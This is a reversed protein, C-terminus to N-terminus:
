DDWQAWVAPPRGWDPDDSSQWVRAPAAGMQDAAKAVAEAMTPAYLVVPVPQFGQAVEYRHLGGLSGGLDKGVYKALYRAARRAEALSSAGAPLDGLLKIHVFGHGWADEIWGRRIYRGVAFHVHLGHGSKHWEPVWLYPLAGGVEGRLRRFFRGVDQRVARPDHQGEGGYTLTGLRNLRNTAAYRRMRGQARRGGDHGMPAPRDPLIPVSAPDPERASRFVGTVEGARPYLRVEWYGMPSVLKARQELSSRSVGGPAAGLGTDNDKM